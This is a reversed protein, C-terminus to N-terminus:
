NTSYIEEQVTSTNRPPETCAGHEIVRYSIMEDRFRQTIDPIHLEGLPFLVLHGEVFNLRAAYDQINPVMDANRYKIQQDRVVLFADERVKILQNKFENFFKLQEESFNSDPQLIRASYIADKAKDLEEDARDFAKQSEVGITYIWPYVSEDLVSAFMPKIQNWDRVPGDNINPLYRSPFDHNHVWARAQKQRQEFPLEILDQYYGIQLNRDFYRMTRFAQNDHETPGVRGERAVFKVEGALVFKELALYINAQCGYLAHDEPFLVVTFDSKGQFHDTEKGEEIAYDVDRDWPNGKMPPLSTACGNVALALLAAVIGKAMVLYIIEYPKYNNRKNLIRMVKKFFDANM